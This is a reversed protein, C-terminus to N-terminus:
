VEVINSDVAMTWTRLQLAAADGGTRPGPLALAYFMDTMGEPLTGPECGMGWEVKFSYPSCSEIATKFLIQGPDDGIPVFQNDMNGANLTTKFKRVRREAILAQEGVDQVDGLDGANVWGGIETWVTASFDAETVVGKAVVEEGIFIRSGAVPYLAM